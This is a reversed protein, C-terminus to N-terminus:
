KTAKSKKTLQKKPEELVPPLRKELIKYHNAKIREVMSYVGKWTNFWKPLKDAEWPRKSTDLSLERLINKITNITSHPSLKEVEPTLESLTFETMAQNRFNEVVKLVAYRTDYRFLIKKLGLRDALNESLQMEYSKLKQYTEEEYCNIRLMEDWNSITVKDLLSLDANKELLPQFEELFYKVPHKTLDKQKPM